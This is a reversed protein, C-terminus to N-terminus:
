VAPVDKVQRTVGVAVQAQMSVADEDGPVHEEALDRGVDADVGAGPRIGQGFEGDRELADDPELVPDRKRAVAFRDVIGGTARLRDEFVVALPEVDDAGLESLPGPRCVLDGM